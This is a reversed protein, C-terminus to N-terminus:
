PTSLPKQPSRQFSESPALSRSVPEDMWTLQLLMGLSRNPPGEPREVHPPRPIVPVARPGTPVPRVRRPVRLSPAVRVSGGSKGAGATWAQALVVAFAM